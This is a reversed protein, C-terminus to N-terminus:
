QRAERTTKGGLRHVVEQFETSRRLLRGGASRLHDVAEDDLVFSTPLNNFYRRKEADRLQSFSVEVLSFNFPEGHDNLQDAWQQFSTRVLELSEFNFRRIQIGSTVGAMLALSQFLNLGELTFDPETQANVVIMLIQRAGHYGADNLLAELSGEEVVRDFAGRIGLNDTVGGDVLYIYDGESRDLYSEAIRAQLFRRSGTDETLLAQSIWAPPRYGCTGAYNRIKLPPFPGPVASSAAVARAIPYTLLDNCIPDFDERIFSFRSGRVFDTSNILIAPGPVDAFNVVTKGDFIAKDYFEAALDSRNFRTSPLRFWNVPNLIRRWLAGQVNRRLFRKEYDEFIRDGFLGYYAATFSGGSVGSILDVEDLLRRQRGGVDITTDRLEELVGYAFAAARTGGGSFALIVVAEDSEAKRGMSLLPHTGEWTEMPPNVYHQACGAALLAAVLGSGWRALRNTRRADSDKQHSSM